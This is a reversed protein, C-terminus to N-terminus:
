GNLRNVVPRSAQNQNLIQSVADIGHKCIVADLAQRGFKVLDDYAVPEAGIDSIELDQIEAIGMGTSFESLKHHNSCSLNRHVGFTYRTGQIDQDFTAFLPASAQGDSTVLNISRNM